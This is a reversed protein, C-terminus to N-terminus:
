RVTSSAVDVDKFRSKLLSVSILASVSNLEKRGRTSATCRQQSFSRCRCLTPYPSAGPAPQM